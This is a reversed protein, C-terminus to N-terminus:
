WDNGFQLGDRSWAVAHLRGVDPSFKRDLRGTEWDWIKVTGDASVSVLEKGNPSSALGRIPLDHAPWRRSSEHGNTSGLRM